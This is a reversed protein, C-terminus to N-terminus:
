NLAGGRPRDVTNFNEYDNYNRTKTPSLMSRKPSNDMISLTRKKKPMSLLEGNERQM